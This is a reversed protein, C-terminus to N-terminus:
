GARQSGRRSAFAVTGHTAALAVLLGVCTYTVYYGLMPENYEGFFGGKGDLEAVVVAPYLLPVTIAALIARVLTSRVLLIIISIGLPAFFAVYIAPEYGDGFEMRVAAPGRVMRQASADFLMANPDLGMPLFFALALAEAVAVQVWAVTM